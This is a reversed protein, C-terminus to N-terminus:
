SQRVNPTALLKQLYGQQEVSRRLSPLNNCFGMQWGNLKYEEMAYCLPVTLPWDIVISKHNGPTLDTYVSGAGLTFARKVIHEVTLDANKIYPM